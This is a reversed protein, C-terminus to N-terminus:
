AHQRCKALNHSFWSVSHTARHTKRDFATREGVPALLQCDVNKSCKVQMCDPSSHGKMNVLNVLVCRDFNWHLPPSPSGVSRSLLLVVNNGSQLCRGHLSSNHQWPRFTSQLARLESASNTCFPPRMSVNSRAHPGRKAIFCESPGPAVQPSDAAPLFHELSSLRVVWCGSLVLRENILLKQCLTGHKVLDDGLHHLSHTSPQCRASKFFLSCHHLNSKCTQFRKGTWGKRSTSCWNCKNAVLCMVAICGKSIGRNSSHPDTNQVDASAPGDGTPGQKNNSALCM